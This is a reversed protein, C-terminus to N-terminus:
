NPWAIRISEVQDTGHDIQRNRFHLGCSHSVTDSQKNKAEDIPFTLSKRVPQALELFYLYTSRSAM